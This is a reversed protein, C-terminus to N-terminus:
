PLNSMWRLVVNGIQTLTHGALGKEDSWQRHLFKIDRLYGNLRDSDECGCPREERTDQDHDTLPNPEPERPRACGTVCLLCWARTADLGETPIWRQGCRICKPRADVEASPAPEPATPEACLKTVSEWKAYVDDGAWEDRVCERTLKAIEADV